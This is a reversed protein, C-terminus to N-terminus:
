FSDIRVTVLATAVHPDAAEARTGRAELFKLCWPPSGEGPPVVSGGPHGEKEQHSSQAVLGQFALHQGLYHRSHLVFTAVHLVRPLFAKEKPLVSILHQTLGPPQAYLCADGELSPRTEGRGVAAEDHDDEVARGHVGAPCFGLNKTIVGTLM